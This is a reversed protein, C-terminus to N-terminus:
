EPYSLLYKERMDQYACELTAAMEKGNCLGSEAMMHRLSSRLAKRRGPNNALRNACNVYEEETSAIMEDLGISALMDMSIREIFRKGALTIVPVGMWLAEATTTVGSRPITDLAIDVMRYTDLHESFTKTHPMMVLRTEAIGHQSFRDLLNQQLTQDAMQRSKLLLKSEPVALLVKSWLKIVQPSIKILSNFSGFTIERDINHEPCVEPADAPPLYCLCCRPLRYLAETALEITDGPHLREDTIWYDMASLGTTTFYGLYTAQIPAPKYTFIMLRNNATHGGLDILIDIGDEYIQQAAERDNMSTIFRWNESYYQLRKTVEDAKKVEAYCFVEIRSRDHHKLIAEFFHSVAHHKFDSSVYGVRIRSSSRRERPHTFTKAKGPGGHIHDWVQHERLMLDPDCMVNYSLLFLLNSRAIKFEPNLDLAKRYSDIADTFQGNEQLATGLNYHSEAISLDLQVAKRYSEISEKIKVQRQLASGLNNYARIYGPDLRIAQQYHEIAQDLDGQHVMANGINIYAMTFEPKLQIAIKYHDIAEQFRDQNKCANAYNYHALENAPALDIIKRFSQRTGKLDGLKNNIMGLLSWAEINQPQERCLRICLEKAKHFQGSSLLQNIIDQHSM